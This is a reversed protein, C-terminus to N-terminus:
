KNASFEPFTFIKTSTPLSKCLFSLPATDQSALYVLKAPDESLLRSIKTTSVVPEHGFIKPSPPITGAFDFDHVDLIVCM